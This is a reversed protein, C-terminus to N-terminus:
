GRSTEYDLRQAEVQARAREAEGPALKLANAQLYDELHAKKVLHAKGDSGNILIESLLYPHFESM